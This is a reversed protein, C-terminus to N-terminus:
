ELSASRSHAGNWLRVPRMVLNIMTWSIRVLLMHLLHSVVKGTFTYRIICRREKDQDRKSFLTM